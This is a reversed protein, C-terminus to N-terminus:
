IVGRYVKKFLAENIGPHWAIGVVPMSTDRALIWNDDSEVFDYIAGITPGMSSRLQSPGAPVVTDMISLKMVGGEETRFTMIGQSAVVTPSASSGNVDLGLSNIFRRQNTGETYEWMVVDNVVAATNLIDTFLEAWATAAVSALVDINDRTRLEITNLATGTPISGQADCNLSMRHVRGGVSYTFELAHPGPYNM